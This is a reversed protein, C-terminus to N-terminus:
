KRGIFDSAKTQPRAALIKSFQAVFDAPTKGATKLAHSFNQDSEAFRQVKAIEGRAAESFAVAAPQTAPLQQAPKGAFTAVTLHPDVHKRKLHFAESYQQLSMSKKFQAPKQAYSQALQQNDSGQADSPM